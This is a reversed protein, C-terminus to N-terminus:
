SERGERPHNVPIHEFKVTVGETMWLGEAKENGMWAQQTCEEGRVRRLLIRGHHGLVPVDIPAATEDGGIVCPSSEPQRPSPLVLIGLVYVGALTMAAPRLPLAHGQAAYLLTLKGLTLPGLATV